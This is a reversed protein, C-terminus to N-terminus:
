RTYKKLPRGMFGALRHQQGLPRNGPGKRLNKATEMRVNDPREAMSVRQSLDKAQASRRMARSYNQNNLSGGVRQAKRRLYNDIPRQDMGNRYRPAAGKDWTSNQNGGRTNHGYNKRPDPMPSPGPGPMQGGGGRPGQNGIWPDRPPPIQGPITGYGGSGPKNKFNRNGSGMVRSGGSGPKRRSGNNNTNKPNFTKAVTLPQNYKRAMKKADRIGAKTNPFKQRNKGRGVIAM